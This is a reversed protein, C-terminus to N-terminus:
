LGIAYVGALRTHKGGNKKAHWPQFFCRFRRVALHLLVPKLEMLALAAGRNGRMKESVCRSGQYVVIFGKKKPNLRETKRDTINSVAVYMKRSRTKKMKKKVAAAVDWDLFAVAMGRAGAAECTIDGM